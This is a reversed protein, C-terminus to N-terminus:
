AGRTWAPSGEDLVRCRAAPHRRHRQAALAEVDDDTLFTRHDVSAADFSSPSCRIAGDSPALQAAHVRVGLGNAAGVQLIHETEDLGYSPAPRAPARRDLPRLARLGRADRGRRPRRLRRARRGRARRARRALHGRPHARAHDRVSRRLRTTSPEARLREEGRHHDHGPGASRRRTARATCACCSTTPAPAYRRWRAGSAEQATAAAAM